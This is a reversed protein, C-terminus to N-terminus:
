HYCNYKNVNFMNFNGGTFILVDETHTHKKKKNTDTTVYLFMNVKIPTWHLKSCIFM